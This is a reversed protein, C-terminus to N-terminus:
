WPNEDVIVECEKGQHAIAWKVTLDMPLEVLKNNALDVELLGELHVLASPVTGSLKNRGLRLVRLGRLNCLEEPISEVLQNDSLDIKWLVSSSLDNGCSGGAVGFHLTFGVVRLAHGGGGGVIFSLRYRDGAQALRRLPDQPYIKLVVRTWEHEAPDPMLRRHEKPKRVSDGPEPPEPPDLSLFITGKRNGWGQDMWWFSVWNVKDSAELPESTWHDREDEPDRPGGEEYLDPAM